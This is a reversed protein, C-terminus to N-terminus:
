HDQKPAEQYKKEKFKYIYKKTEEFTLLAAAVQLGLRLVKFLQFTKTFNQNVVILASYIPIPYFYLRTCLRGQSFLFKAISILYFAFLTM